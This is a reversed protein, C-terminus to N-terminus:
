LDDIWDLLLEANETDKQRNEKERLKQMYVDVEEFKRLHWQMKKQHICNRADCFDKYIADIVDVPVKEIQLIKDYIYQAQINGCDKLNRIINMVISLREEYSKSRFEKIKKNISTM